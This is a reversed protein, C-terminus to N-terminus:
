CRDALRPSIRPEHRQVLRSEGTHLLHQVALHFRCYSCTSISLLWGREQAYTYALWLLIVCPLVPLSQNLQFWIVNQFHTESLQLNSMHVPTEHSTKLSPTKTRTTKPQKRELKSNCDVIKILDRECKLNKKKIKLDGGRVKTLMCRKKHWSLRTITHAEM